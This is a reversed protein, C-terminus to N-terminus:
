RHSVDFPALNDHEVGLSGAAFGAQDLTLYTTSVKGEFGVRCDDRNGDPSGAIEGAGPDFIEFNHTSNVGLRYTTSDLYLALASGIYGTLTDSSNDVTFRTGTSGGLRQTTAQINFLEATAISATVSADAVEVRGAGSAKGLRQTTAEADFYAVQVGDAVIEIYGASTGDDVVEVYSDGEWIKDPNLNAIATDVYTKVAAETPLATDSAGALTGDTSFENVTAGTAMGLGSGTFTAVTSNDIVVLAQSSGSDIVDIRTDGDIIRNFVNWRPNYAM